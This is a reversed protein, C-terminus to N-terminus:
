GIIVQELLEDSELEVENDLRKFDFRTKQKNLILKASLIIGLITDIGSTHGSLSLNWLAEDLEKKNEKMMAKCLSIINMSFKGQSAYWLYEFGIQTTRKYGERSLYEKLEQVYNKSVEVVSLIALVGVLFDDGSPTLGRGRGMWYNLVDSDLKEELLSNELLMLQNYFDDKTAENNDLIFRVVEIVNKDFGNDMRIGIVFEILTSFSNLFNSYNVETPVMQSYYYSENFGIKINMSTFIIEKKESDWLVNEDESVNNIIYGIAWNELQVGFPPKASGSESLNILRNGFSLNLSKRFISHVQGVRNSNGLVKMVNISYSKAEAATM